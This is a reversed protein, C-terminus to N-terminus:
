CGQLIRIEKSVREVLLPLLLTKMEEIYKKDFDEERKRRQEKPPCKSDADKWSLEKTSGKGEHRILCECCVYSAGWDGIAM